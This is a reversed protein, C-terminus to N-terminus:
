RSPAPPAGQVASYRQAARGRLVVEDHRLAAQRASMASSPTIQSAPGLSDAFPAIPALEGCFGSPEEDCRSWWCGKRGGKRRGKRAIRWSFRAARADAAEASLAVADRLLDVSTRSGVTRRAPPSNYNNTRKAPTQKRWAWECPWTAGSRTRFKLFTSGACSKLFDRTPHQLPAWRENTAADPKQLERSSSACSLRLSERATNYWM